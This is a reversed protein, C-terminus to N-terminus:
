YKEISLLRRAELFGHMSWALGALTSLPVAHQGQQCEMLEHEQKANDQKEESVHEHKPYDQRAHYRAVEGLGAKRARRTAKQKAYEQGPNEHKPHDQRARKHIAHCKAVECIRVRATRIPADSSCTSKSQTNRNPANRDQM